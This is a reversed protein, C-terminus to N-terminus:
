CLLLFGTGATIYLGHGTAKNAEAMLRQETDTDAFTTTSACLYDATKLFEEGSLLTHITFLLFFNSETFIYLGVGAEPAM